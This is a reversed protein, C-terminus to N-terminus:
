RCLDRTRQAKDARKTARRPAPKPLTGNGKFKALTADAVPVVESPLSATAFDVVGRATRPGQYDLAPKFYKGTYPNRQGTGPVFVKVTPFGQVGNAGATKKHVDANVAGFKVIGQLNTAAKEFGKAFQKCHGCWDAYFEVVWVHKTDKTVESAFNDDDLKVLPSASWDYLPDAAAVTHLLNLLSWM